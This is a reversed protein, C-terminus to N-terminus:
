HFAKKWIKSDSKIKRILQLKKFHYHRQTKEHTSPSANTSILVRDLKIM